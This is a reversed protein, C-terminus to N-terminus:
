FLKIICVIHTHQATAWNSGWEKNETNLLVLDQVSLCVHSGIYAAPIQKEYNAEYTNWTHKSPIKQEEVVRCLSIFTFGILIHVSFSEWLIISIGCTLETCAM